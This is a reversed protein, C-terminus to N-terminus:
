QRPDSGLNTMKIAVPGHHSGSFQRFYLLSRTWVWEVNILPQGNLLVPFLLCLFLIVDCSAVLDFSSLLDLLLDLSLDQVLLTTLAAVSEKMVLKDLHM